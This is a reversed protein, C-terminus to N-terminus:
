VKFVDCRTDPNAVLFALLRDRNMRQTIAKTQTNLLYGGAIKGNFANVHIVLTLNQSEARRKMDARVEHQLISLNLMEEIKRNM